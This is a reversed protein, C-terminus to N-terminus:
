EVILSKLLTVVKEMMSENGDKLEYNGILVTDGDNNRTFHDAGVYEKPFQKLHCCIMSAAGEINEANYIIAPVDPILIEFIRQRKVIPASVQLVLKIKDNFVLFITAPRDRLDLLNIIEQAIDQAM